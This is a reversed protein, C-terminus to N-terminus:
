PSGQSLKKPEEWQWGDIGLGGKGTYGARYHRVVGDGDVLVLTPLGSVGFRQFTSRHRDAAVITPFPHDFADLFERVKEPPEDTIAVVETHRADGFAMIEPLATKCIACWTAWFFLMRPTGDALRKAGRVLDVNLAPAASGVKPPGPLKPWELPFPGPNLTVQLTQEERLVKLKQPQGIESRMTWERVQNPETFPAHPPGVIIDGIELRAAAAPSDPYVTMVTVAGPPTKYRARQPETLQAYRIGMWAPMVAEAVKQEEV